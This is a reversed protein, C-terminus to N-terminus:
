YIDAAAEHRSHVPFHHDQRCPRSPDPRLPHGRVRLHRHVSQRRALIGTLVATRGWCAVPSVPFPAGLYEVCNIKIDDDNGGDPPLPVDKLLTRLVYPGTELNSYTPPKRPLKKADQVDSAM